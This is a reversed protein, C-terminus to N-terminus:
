FKKVVKSGKSRMISKLEEETNSIWEIKFVICFMAQIICDYAKHIINEIYKARRM